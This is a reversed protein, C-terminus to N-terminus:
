RRPILVYTKALGGYIFDVRVVVITKDPKQFWLEAQNPRDKDPTVAVLNGFEAPIADVANLTEVKLQRVTRLAEEDPGLKQCSTLGMCLAVMYLFMGTRMAM